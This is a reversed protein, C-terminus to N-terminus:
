VTSHLQQFTKMSFCRALVNRPSFREGCFSAAYVVDTTGIEWLKTLQGQLVMEATVLIDNLGSCKLRKQLAYIFSMQQHFTGIIHIIGSKKLQLNINFGVHGNEWSITHHIDGFKGLGLWTKKANQKYVRESEKASIIDWFQFPKSWKIVYM